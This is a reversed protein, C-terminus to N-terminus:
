YVIAKVTIQAKGKVTHVNTTFFATSPTTGILEQAGKANKQYIEYYGVNGLAKDWTIRANTKSHRRFCSAKELRSCFNGILFYRM